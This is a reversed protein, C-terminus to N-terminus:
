SCAAWSCLGSVHRFALRSELEELEFDLDLNDQDQSLDPETEELPLNQPLENLVTVTKM